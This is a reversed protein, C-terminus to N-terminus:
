VTPPALGLRRFLNVDSQKVRTSRQGVYPNSLSAGPDYAATKLQGDAPEGLRQEGANRHQAVHALLELAKVPDALTAAAKERQEPLIRENEVLADVVGPILAQCAAKVRDTQAIAAAAKELAASSYGIHEVIKEPLTLQTAM